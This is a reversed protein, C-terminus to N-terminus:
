AMTLLAIAARVMQFLTRSSALLVFRKEWLFGPFFGAFSDVVSV